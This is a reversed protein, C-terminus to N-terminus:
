TQSLAPGWSKSHKIVHGQLKICITYDGGGGLFFFFEWYGAM